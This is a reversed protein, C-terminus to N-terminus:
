RIFLRDFYANERAKQHIGKIEADSKGLVRLITEPEIERASAGPDEWEPLLHTQDRIEWVDQHRYRTFVEKLIQVESESLPGVDASGVLKLYYRGRGAIQRSWPGETAPGVVVAKALNYVRSLVPGHKMSVYRDGTIPYGLQDLSERDALYLLKILRLYEMEGGALQLLLSAAATAKREDFQFQIKNPTMGFGRLLGRLDM